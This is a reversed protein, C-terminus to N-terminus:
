SKRTAADYADSFYALFVDLMGNDYPATMADWREVYLEWAKAKKSGLMSSGIKAEVAEPSLGALLQALAPQIAAHVGYQHRKIDDLASKVAAAGRQFGPRARGYMVELAEDATPVFKLPNNDVNGIMTRSASKVSQKTAARAKLLSALEEVVIRLTKGIERGTETPDGALLVEPRVGAGECIAMLFADVSGSGSPMARPAPPTPAAAPPPPEPAKGPVRGFPSAAGDPTTGVPMPIHNSGFDQPPPPRSGAQDFRPEVAAPAAGGMSWIDGGSPPKRVPASPAGLESFDSYPVPAPGEPAAARPPPEMSPMPAPQAAPREAVQLDVVVAFHGIQLRDGPELRHPSKMRGSGGNIFTGNTSVDYLMYSGQEFRFELHRSSIFRNPDPLSWDLAPDRGVDFSRDEASYSIPGGDPLSDINDIRLTLKM